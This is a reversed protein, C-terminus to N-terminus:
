TKTRTVSTVKSGSYTYTEAMTMEVAGVGDYQTTVVQSVKNGSYTYQEERIKLTKAASTWVIYSMAKNGSYTVEDFSTEDIEHVLTDLAEHEAETIGGGAGSEWQSTTGNYTLVQGDSPAPATVDGIDTLANVVGSAAGTRDIFELLVRSSHAVTEEDPEGGVSDTVTIRVKDNASFHIFCVLTMSAALSAESERIYGGMTDPQQVWGSGTDIDIHLQPNGRAGGSTSACAITTLAVVRYWGEALIEIEGPNVTTSHSYYSDKITESDLPIVKNTNDVTMGGTTDIGQFLKVLPGGSGGTTLSKVQGNLYAVLDGNVYRALGEEGPNGQSSQDVFFLDSVREGRGWNM